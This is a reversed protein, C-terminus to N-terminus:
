HSYDPGPKVRQEPTESKLIVFYRNAVNISRMITKEDHQVVELPQKRM